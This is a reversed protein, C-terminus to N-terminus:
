LTHHCAISGLSPHSQLIGIHRSSNGPYVGGHREVAAGGTQLLLSHAQAHNRISHESVHNSTYVFDPHECVFTTITKSALTSIPKKVNKKKGTWGPVRVCNFGRSQGNRSFNSQHCIRKNMPWDSGLQKVLALM